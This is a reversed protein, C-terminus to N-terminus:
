ELFEVGLIKEIEKTRERTWPKGPGFIQPSTVGTVILLARILNDMGEDIQAGWVIRADPSLKAAVAEVIQQSERVTIGPGSMVNILAGRAGKIDVTLLPNNLAREVAEYARNETDSEGLGIMALGGGEMIARVDAFDLNVLGPKTVLETVGKVANALIEDAMRFAQALSIDPAIDLLKDNPVVILTNVVKELNELGELANRKRQGGEMSFPLTVIAVVLAGMEKALGAVVPLSGTGTGGGLGCTLFLMDTGKLVEKLEDKAEKAAEAGMKPDAGCGLGQTLERGLLVKTHANTYLLDQADTNIAITEAGVLGMEMLRSITNGGAGGAGLVRIQTAKEELLAALEKDIQSKSRSKTLQRIGVSRGGEFM